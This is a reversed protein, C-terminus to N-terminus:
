FGASKGYMAVNNNYISRCVNCNVYVKRHMISNDNYSIFIMEEISLKKSNIIKLTGVKHILLAYKSM